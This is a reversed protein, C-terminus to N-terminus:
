IEREDTAKRSQPISRMGRDAAKDWASKVRAYTKRFGEKLEHPAMASAVRSAGVVYPALRSHVVSTPPTDDASFAMIGMVLAVSILIGRLLGFGAGLIHDFFSLGTFKLFRGVVLNVMAGAVLVGCFVIAFGAFNALRQSSLFPALVGGAASYFWMGLVLALVVSVLGIVERSLGKRFSTLMSAALILVLIIDLWNM